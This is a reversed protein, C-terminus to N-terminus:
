AAAATPAHALFGTLVGALQEPAQEAMHHGSDIRAGRVDDAWGRWIAVHPIGDLVAVHTVADPADLALRSAVGSGRDHGAVAFRGHGLATMVAVVDRAM